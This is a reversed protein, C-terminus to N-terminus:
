KKSDQTIMHYSIDLWGGVGGWEGSSGRRYLCHAYQECAQSMRLLNYWDYLGEFLVQVVCDPILLAKQMTFTKFASLEKTRIM